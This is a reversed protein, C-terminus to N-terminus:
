GHALGGLLIERLYDAIRELQALEETDEVGRVSLEIDPTIGIRHWSEAKSQRRVRRTEMLKGLEILLHDVPTAHTPAGSTEEEDYAALSHDTADEDEVDERIVKAARPLSRLYESASASDAPILARHPGTTSALTRIDQGSMSLLQRRVEHLPLGHMNKLAKIALLRELHARSYRAYRGMSDPGRLLGQEIFSRIVRRDFGSESALEDLSFTHEPVDMNGIYRWCSAM